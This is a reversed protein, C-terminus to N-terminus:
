AKRGAKSLAVRAQEACWSGDCRLGERITGGDKAISRLAERLRDREETLADLARHLRAVHGKMESLLEITSIAVKLEREIRDCKAAALESDPTTPIVTRHVCSGMMPVMNLRCAGVEFRVRRLDYECGDCPTSDSM